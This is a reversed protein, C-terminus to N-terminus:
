SLATGSRSFATLFLFKSAVPHTEAANLFVDNFGFSQCGGMFLTGFWAKTKLLVQPFPQGVGTTLYHLHGLQQQMVAAQLGDQLPSVDVSEVHMKASNVDM